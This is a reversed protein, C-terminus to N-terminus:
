EVNPQMLGILDASFQCMPWAFFAAYDHRHVVDILPLALDCPEVAPDDVGFIGLLIAPRSRVGPLRSRWM